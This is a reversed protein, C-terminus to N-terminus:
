KEQIVLHIEGVQIKSIEQTLEVEEKVVVLVAAVLGETKIDMKEM